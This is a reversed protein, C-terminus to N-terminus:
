KWGTVFSGTRRRLPKPKPAPMAATRQWKSSDDHTISADILSTPKSNSQKASQRRRRAERTRREAASRSDTRRRESGARSSPDADYRDHSRHHHRGHRMMPCARMPRRPRSRPASRPSVHTRRCCLAPGVIYCLREDASTEALEGVFVAYALSAMAYDLPLEVMLSACIPVRASLLLAYLDGAVTAPSRPASPM